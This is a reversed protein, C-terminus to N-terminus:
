TTPAADLAAILEDKVRVLTAFDYASAGGSLDPHIRKLFSRFSKLVVTKSLSDGFNQSVMREFRGWKAQSVEDLQSKKVWKEPKMVPKELPTFSKKEAKAAGGFSAKPAKPYGRFTLSQPREVQLFFLNPHLESIREPFPNGPSHAGSNGPRSQGMKERLIDEFTVGDM